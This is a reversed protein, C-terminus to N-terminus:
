RRKEMIMRGFSALSIADTINDSDIEEGYTELVISQTLSKRYDRIGKNIQSRNKWEPHLLLLQQRAKGRLVPNGIAEQWAMPPAEILRAKSGLLVSKMAGFMQALKLAVEKNPGIIAREFIIYDCDNFLDRMFETELILRIQYLRLDFDAATMFIEGYKILNNQDDIMGFALSKSSADIGIIKM